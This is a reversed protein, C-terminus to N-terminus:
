KQQGNKTQHQFYSQGSASVARSSWCFKRVRQNTSLPVEPNGLGIWYKHPISRYAARNTSSKILCIHHFPRESM